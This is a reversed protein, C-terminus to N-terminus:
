NPRGTATRALRGLRVMDTLHIRLTEPASESDLARELTEAAKAIPDFGLGGSTAKVSRVLSELEALRAERFASKCADLKAPLSEVFERILDGLSADGAMSSYIPEEKVVTLVQEFNARTYPKGIFRDCGAELCARQDQPRTMASAAVILGEYGQERLRRTATLGDLVPMEVDMFVIAFSGALAKEVGVQGNEAHTAVANLSKLTNCALRAMLPDDEVVLVDVTVAEPCYVTPDIPKDFRLRVEHITGEVYQCTAVSGPVHEWAGHASILQAVCRSGAHVFGGHLFSLDSRSLRRTSCLFAIPSGAGPQALHVVCNHIRYRFQEGEVPATSATAREVRDLLADIEDERLRVSRFPTRAPPASM